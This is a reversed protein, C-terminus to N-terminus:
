SSNVLVYSGGMKMFTIKIAHDGNEATIAPQEKEWGKGPGGNKGGSGERGVTDLWEAVSRIGRSDGVTGGRIGQDLDDERGVDVEANGAEGKVAVAADWGIKDIGPHDFLDIV